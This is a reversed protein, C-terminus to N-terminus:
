KMLDVFAQTASFQRFELDTLAKVKLSSDANTANRLHEIVKNENGQRAAAVAAAYHAWVYGRDNSIV